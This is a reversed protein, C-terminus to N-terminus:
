APAPAAIATPEGRRADMRIDAPKHAAAPAPAAIATPLAEHDPLDVFVVIHDRVAHEHRPVNAARAVVLGLRAHSSSSRKPGACNVCGLEDSFAHRMTAGVQGLPSM